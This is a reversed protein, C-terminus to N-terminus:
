LKFFWSAAGISQLHRLPSLYLRHHLDFRRCYSASSLLVPLSLLCASSLLIAPSLLELLSLSSSHGSFFQKVQECYFATVQWAEKENWKVVDDCCYICYDGWYGEMEDMKSTDSVRWMYFFCSSRWLFSSNGHDDEFWHIHFSTPVLLRSRIQRTM